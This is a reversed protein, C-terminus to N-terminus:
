GDSGVGIVVVVVAGTVLVLFSTAAKQYTKTGDGEGDVETEIEVEVEVEILSTAERMFEYNGSPTAPLRSKSLVVRQGFRVSKEEWHTM